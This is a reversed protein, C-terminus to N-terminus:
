KLKKELNKTYKLIRGYSTIDTFTVGEALVKRDNSFDNKQIDQIHTWEGTIKVTDNFRTRQKREWPTWKM